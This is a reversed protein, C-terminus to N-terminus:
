DTAASADLAPVALTVSRRAVVSSGVGHFVVTLTPSAPTEGLEAYVRMTGAEGRQVIMRPLTVETCQCSPILELIEIPYSCPNEFRVEAVGNTKGPTPKVDVSDPLLLSPPEARSTFAVCLSVIAGIMALSGAARQLM